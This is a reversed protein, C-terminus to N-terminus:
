SRRSRPLDVRVSDKQRDWITRSDRKILASLEDSTLYTRRPGAAISAEM